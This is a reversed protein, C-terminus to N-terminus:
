AGIVQPNWFVSQPDVAKKIGLLRGYLEEGYYLKHAEEASLTPDVYNLYAGFEANPMKTTMADNLGDLWKMSSEPLTANAATYIYHQAVWLMSRHSYAAFDIDKKNIASGPGGYLNIISFWPTPAKKEIMYSFYSKLADATLPSAEPVTVSKAFFNDHKDYNETPTLLTDYDSLQILLEIWSMTKVTSKTPQPLGALFASAVKSKYEEETGYYAGSLSYGEGDMHMGMGGIKEDVVSANLATDQIHQFYGATKAADEYM